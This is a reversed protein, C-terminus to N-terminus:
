QSAVFAMTIGMQDDVAEPMDYYATETVRQGNAVTAVGERICASMSSIHGTGHHDIYLPSEGYGARSDCILQGTTDNRIAINIGGDHIHGGIAVIQGPRNVNWTWSAQSPGAPRSIESFGCQAVDFWIPEVNKMGPTSAPVYDYSMKIYVNQPDATMGALEYILNWTDFADVRYGYGAPFHIRTREDGSAFFRQGFILGLPFPFGVNCTADSRGWSWNALVMHHLQANTSYGARRGDEYVLDAQMSTVYCNTCPKQVFFRFQNGTHAHGHTGDPNNPAGPITFPGYRLESHQAGPQGPVTTTTTAPRSTTTSGPVTTTSGPRTTTTSGPGTTTTSGPVTTTTGGHDHDGHHEQAGSIGVGWVPVSLMAM